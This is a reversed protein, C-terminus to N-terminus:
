RNHSVKFFFTATEPGFRHYIELTHFGFGGHTVLCLCCAHLATNWLQCYTLTSILTGCANLGVLAVLICYDSYDIRNRIRKAVLRLGVFVVAIFISISSTVLVSVQQGNEIPITGLM